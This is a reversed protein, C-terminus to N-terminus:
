KIEWDDLSAVQHTPMKEKQALDEPSTFGSFVLLTDIQNNIGAMIDTEYNDGVMVVEEKTLGIVKLAEEMIIAEPKGIFAPETQTAAQVMAAIAGAGPVLGRESPMNTDKNTGIFKAGKQIALVAKTIDEYNVQRDLGVVVYAPNEEDITYGAETFQARLGAEGIVYVTKGLNLKNLYAITAISGTYILSPDVHIDFNSSLNEAVAEPAKTTNNTVFLFPLQKDQLRKIFRTAAPIKKTGLYMTGDLDILYGKYTM